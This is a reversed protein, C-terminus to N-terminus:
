TTSFRMPLRRSLLVGERVDLSPSYSLQSLALKALQIDGTRDRDAGLSELMMRDREKVVSYSHLEIEVSLRVPGRPSADPRM